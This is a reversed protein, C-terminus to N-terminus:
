LFNSCYLKIAISPIEHTNSTTRPLYADYKHKLTFKEQHHIIFNIELLLKYKGQFKSHRNFYGRPGSTISYFSFHRGKRKFPITKISSFHLYIIPHDLIQISSNKESLIPRLGGRGRKQSSFPTLSCYNTILRRHNKHMM